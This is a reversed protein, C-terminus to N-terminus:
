NAVQKNYISLTQLALSKWDFKWRDFHLKSPKVRQSTFKLLIEQLQLPKYPDFFIAQNNYLERFVPIDSLILPCHFYLAELAPLGFGESFSPFILAQAHQYLSPLEDDQAFGYFVFQNSLDYAAVKEKLKNLFYDEGGVIVVKFLKNSKNAKYVDVLIDLNKHPYANGIVIFYKDPIKSTSLRSDTNQHRELKEDIAEYTVTIKWPAISYEKIIDIKVAESVTIVHEAKQLGLYLICKYGFRKINYLLYNRTTAKGTAYHNITLDHITVIVRGAYFIPITFYPVHLVDLSYRMFLIPGIIQELVTHWRIKYEVLKIEAPLIKKAEEINCVFAIYENDPAIKPLNCLLNSLYRGVGTEFLLRADIGIRM